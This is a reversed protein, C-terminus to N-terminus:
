FSVLPHHPTPLSPFYNDRRLIKFLEWLSRKIKRALKGFLIDLVSSRVLEEYTEMRITLVTPLAVM